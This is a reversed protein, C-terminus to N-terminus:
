VLKYYLSMRCKVTYEPNYFKVFVDNRGKYDVVVCKGCNNTEFEKGLVSDRIKNVDWGAVKM